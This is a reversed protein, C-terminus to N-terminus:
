RHLPEFFFADSLSTYSPSGLLNPIIKRPQEGEVPEPAECLEFGPPPLKSAAVQSTMTIDTGAHRALEIQTVESGARNLWLISALLVFQPHTLGLPSLAAEVERRWRTSVQWLLFGPSEEPGTFESAKKWNIM